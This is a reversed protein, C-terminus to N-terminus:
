CRSRNVAAPGSGTEFVAAGNHCLLHELPRGANRSRWNMPNTWDLQMVQGASPRARFVSGQGPRAAFALSCEDSSRACLRRKWGPRRATCGTCISSSNKAELEPATALMQEAREWIGAVPDPRTRGLTSPKCNRRRNPRRWMNQTSDSSSRRGEDCQRSDQRDKQIWEHATPITQEHDDRWAPERSAVLGFGTWGTRSRVPESTIKLQRGLYFHSFNTIFPQFPGWFEPGHALNSKKPNQQFHSVASSHTFSFPFPVCTREFGLNSQFSQHANFRDPLNSPFILHM